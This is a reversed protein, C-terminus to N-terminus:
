HPNTVYMVFQEENWSVKSPQKARTLDIPRSRPIHFLARITAVYETLTMIQVLVDDVYNDVLDLGDIVMGMMRGYCAGANVLGFSM